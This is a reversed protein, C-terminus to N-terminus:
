AGEIGYKLHGAQDNAGPGAAQACDASPQARMGLLGQAVYCAQDMVLRIGLM